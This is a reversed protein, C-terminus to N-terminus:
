KVLCITAGTIVGAAYGIGGDRWSFGCGKKVFEIEFHDDDINCSMMGPVTFELRDSLDHRMLELIMVGNEVHCKVQTTAKKIKGLRIANAKTFEYDKAQHKYIIKYVDSAGISLCVNLLLFLKIAKM